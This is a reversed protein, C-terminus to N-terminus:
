QGEKFNIPVIGKLDLLLKSTAIATVAVIHKLTTVKGSLLRDGDPEEAEEVLYDISYGM